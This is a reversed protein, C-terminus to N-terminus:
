SRTNDGGGPTRQYAGRTTPYDPSSTDGTVVVNGSDDVDLGVAAEDGVGGLYTSWVLGSGRPNLKTVFVDGGGGNERQYGGPTTPYDPSDTIGTVYFNGHRDVDSWIANDEGSGGLYTSYSLVPDILLAAGTTATRPRLRGRPSRAARARGFAVRRGQAVVPPLQRLVSHGARLVLAGDADIRLGGGRYSLRIVDPDAGPALAYDFELEGQRSAHFTLDVGTYLGGYVM